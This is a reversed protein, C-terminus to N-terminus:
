RTKPSAYWWAYRGVWPTVEKSECRVAFLLIKVGILQIVSLLVPLRMRVYERPFTKACNSVCVLRIFCDVRCLLNILLINIQIFQLNDM